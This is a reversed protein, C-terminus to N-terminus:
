KVKRGKDAKQFILDGFNLLLAIVATIFYIYFKSHGLPETIMLVGGVIFSAIAIVLWGTKIVKKM